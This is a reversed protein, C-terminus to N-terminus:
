LICVRVAIQRHDYHMCENVWESEYVRAFHFVLFLWVSDIMCNVM